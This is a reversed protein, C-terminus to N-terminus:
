GAEDTSAGARPPSSGPEAQSVPWDGASAGTMTRFYGLQELPGAEVIRGREMVIGDDCAALTSRRHSVVLARGFRGHQSLLRLLAQEGLVDVASTAEDLILLDPKRLLARAIGIRQRQGGSLWTGSTGVRTEYGDPLSRIFGDAEAIRAAEEIEETTAEPRGYAINEAVTGGVLEIDQGAIAIRERWARKDILGLPIDGIRITGSGPEVLGCLLSLLTSKGSGSPGILATSVGPRLTFSADHLAAAGGPYAYSVNEFSIPQQEGPPRQKGHQAPEEEQRLLWEVEAISQGLAMIRTQAETLVRAHPLARILLLITATVGALPVDLRVGAFLVGLLLFFSLVDVGPAVWAVNRQSLLMAQRVEEASQEFRKQEREQRGFVRIIRMAQVIGLMRDGLRHNSRTVEAGLLRSRGEVLYLWSRIVVAGFCVLLFLRWDIWIIFAAFIVMALAAPIISLIERTVDSAHWSDSGIVHVLREPEHQLFFSYPLHLIKHSLASRIDKGIAGTLWGILTTNGVQLLGRVLVLLLLASGIVLAQQGPSSGAMELLEGVPAPVGATSGGALLVALLPLLLAIGFGDLISTTLALVVIGPLYVAYPQALAALRGDAGGSPFRLLRRM